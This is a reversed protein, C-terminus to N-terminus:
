IDKGEVLGGGAWISLSIELMCYVGFHLFIYRPKNKPKRWASALELKEKDRSWSM